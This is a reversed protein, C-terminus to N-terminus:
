GKGIAAVVLPKITVEPGPAFSLYRSAPLIEERNM